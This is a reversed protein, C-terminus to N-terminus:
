LDDKQASFTPVLYLTTLVVSLPTRGYPTLFMFCNGVNAIIASKEKM